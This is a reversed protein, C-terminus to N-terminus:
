RTEKVVHTRHNMATTPNAGAQIPLTYPSAKAIGSREATRPVWASKTGRLHFDDITAGCIIPILEITKTAIVLATAQANYILLGKKTNAITAPTAAHLQEPGVAGTAETGLGLMRGVFTSLGLPPAVSMVHSSGIGACAPGDGGLM